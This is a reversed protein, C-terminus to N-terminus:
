RIGPVQCWRSVSIRFENVKRVMCSKVSNHQACRAEHSIIDYMFCVVIITHHYSVFVYQYSYCGAIEVATPM